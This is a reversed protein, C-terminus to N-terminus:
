KNGGNKLFKQAEITHKIGPAHRGKSKDIEALTLYLKNPDSDPKKLWGELGKTLYIMYLRGDITTEFQAKPLLGTESGYNIM